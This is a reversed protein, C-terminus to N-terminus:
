GTAQAASARPGVESKRAGNFAVASVDMDGALFGLRVGAMAREMERRLPPVSMMLPLAVDRGAGLVWGPSQFFPTLVYSLAAYYRIQNARERQYAQFATGPDATDRLCRALCEADLLALNAGQGLHPSMAHGADGACVVRGNHIQRMSVNFYTTFAVQDFDRVDDFVEEALPSLGLVQDKWAAFGRARLAEMQERPLSWFLTCRDGGVPLLGLLHWTGQTVQHLYGRVRTCRGVAWLAGFSYEHAQVGPDVTKRLGSRSGDAAVLFDFPGHREGRADIAFVEPGAEQWSEIQCDLVIDVGQERAAQHLAEFLVGRHVGYARHGPLVEHYRLHILTGGRGTFAHLGDMPESRAAIGDLLGMRQLVAQGSPQLLLGAGVPGVKPAREFLTVAHGDRALLAALSGGAVGFGAIGVRYQRM